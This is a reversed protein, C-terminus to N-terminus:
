RRSSVRSTSSSRRCCRARRRRPGRLTRRTAYTSASASIRWGNRLRKALRKTGSGRCRRSSPSTRTYIWTRRRSRSAGRANRPPPPSRPTAAPPPCRRANILKWKGSLPCRRTPERANGRLRPASAPSTTPSSRYTASRRTSPHRSRPANPKANRWAGRRTGSNMTAKTAKTRTPVEWPATSPSGGPTAYRGGRTRRTRARGVRADSPTKWGHASRRWARTPPAFVSKRTCFSRRRSQWGRRPRSRRTERATRHPRPRYVPSCRRSSPTSAAPSTSARTRARSKRTPTAVRRSPKRGANAWRRGSRRSQISWPNAGRASPTASPSSRRSRRPATPSRPTPNLARPWRRRSPM